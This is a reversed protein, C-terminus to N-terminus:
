KDDTEPLPPLENMISVFFDKDKEHTLIDKVDFRSAWRAEPHNEMDVPYVETQTTTFLYMRIEKIESEDDKTYKGIKFRKYKGLEKELKLDTVGTEEFIERKAASLPDEGAEIHGKPLSWTNNRQAVVLIRGTQKSVVVGGASHTYTAREM